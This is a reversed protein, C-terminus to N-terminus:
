EKLFFNLIRYEKRNIDIMSFFLFFGFEYFRGNM